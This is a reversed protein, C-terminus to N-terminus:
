VPIRHEAMTPEIIRGIKVCYDVWQPTVLRKEYSHV